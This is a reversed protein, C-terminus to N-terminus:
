AILGFEGLGGSKIEIKVYLICTRKKRKKKKGRERMGTAEQLDSTGRKSVVCSATINYM